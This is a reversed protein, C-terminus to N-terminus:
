NDIKKRCSFCDRHLHKLVLHGTLNKIIYVEKIWIIVFPLIFSIGVWAYDRTYLVVALTLATFNLFCLRCNAELSNVSKHILSPFSSFCVKWYTCIPSHSGSVGAIIDSSCVWVELKGVGYGIDWSVRFIIPSPKQGM